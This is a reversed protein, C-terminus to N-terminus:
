EKIEFIKNDIEINWKHKTYTGRSCENGRCYDFQKVLRIGNVLETEIIELYTGDEKIIRFIQFNSKDILYTLATAGTDVKLNYYKKNRINEVGVLEIIFGLNMFHLEPHVLAMRKYNLIENKSLSEIGNITKYVGLDGNVVLVSKSKNPYTTEINVKDPYIIRTEVYINGYELEAVFLSSSTKNKKLVDLEGMTDLYNEWIVKSTLENNQSISCSVTLLLIITQLPIIIKM